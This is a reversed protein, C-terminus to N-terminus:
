INYRHNQYMQREKMPTYIFHHMCYVPLQKIDVSTTYM